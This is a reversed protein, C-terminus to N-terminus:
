SFSWVGLGETRIWHSVATGSYQTMPNYGLAEWSSVDVKIYIAGELVDSPGFLLFTGVPQLAELEVAEDETLTQNKM